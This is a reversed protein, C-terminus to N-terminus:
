TFINFLGARGIQGTPIPVQSKFLDPSDHGGLRINQIQVSRYMSYNGSIQCDPSPPLGFGPVLETTSVL